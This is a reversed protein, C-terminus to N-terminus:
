KKPPLAYAGARGSFGCVSRSVMTFSAGGQKLFLYHQGAANERKNHNKLLNFRFSVWLSIIQKEKKYFPFLFVFIPSFYM